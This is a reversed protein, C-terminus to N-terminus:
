IVIEDNKYNCYRYFLYLGLVSFMDQLFLGESWLDDIFFLYNLTDCLDGILLLAIAVFLLTVKKSKWKSLFYGILGFSLVFAKILSFIFDFATHSLGLEFKNILLVIKYILLINALIVLISLLTYVNLALRLEVEKYMEQIILFFGLTTLLQALYFLAVFTFKTYAFALGSLTAVIFAVVVALLVKNVKSDYRIHFALGLILFLLTAYQSERFENNFSLWGM